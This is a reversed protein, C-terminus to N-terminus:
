QNGENTRRKQTHRERRNFGRKIAKREGPKWYLFKRWRTLGDYEDGGKLPIERKM